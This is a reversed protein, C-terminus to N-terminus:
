RKSFDEPEPSPKRKGIAWGKKTAEEMFKSQQEYGPSGPPLVAM